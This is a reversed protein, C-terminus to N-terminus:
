PITKRNQTQRSKFKSFYNEVLGLSKKIAMSIAPVTAPAMLQSSPIPAAVTDRYTGSARDRSSLRNGEDADPERTTVLIPAYRTVFAGCYALILSM